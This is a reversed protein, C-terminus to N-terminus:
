LDYQNLNYQKILAILKEAYDPDTAYGQNQLAWAAQEYNKAQLVSGYHDTNWDTGNVFLQTHAKVSDEWSGYVAFTDRITTWQGDVYEQTTMLSGNPNKIGFLNNYKASLESKGWDSELAAQALTISALVGYQRQEAQAIPALQKIFNQKAQEDNSITAQPTESTAFYKDAMGTLFTVALLVIFGLFLLQSYNKKKRRAM